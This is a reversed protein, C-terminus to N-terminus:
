GHRSYVNYIYTGPSSDGGIPMYMKLWYFLLQSPIFLIFMIRHRLLKDATAKTKGCTFYGIAPDNCVIM